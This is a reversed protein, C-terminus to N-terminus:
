AGTVREYFIERLKAQQTYTLVYDPDETKRLLHNLFDIEWDSLGDRGDDLLELMERDTYM